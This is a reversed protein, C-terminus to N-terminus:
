GYYLGKRKKAPKSYKKVIKDLCKKCTFHSRMPKTLSFGNPKGKVKGCVCCLKETM